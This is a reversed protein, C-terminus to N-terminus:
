PRPHTITYLHYVPARGAATASVVLNEIQNSDPMTSRPQLRRGATWRALYPLKTSLIAAQLGDLRGNTGEIPASAQDVRRTAGAEGDTRRFRCAEYRDRQAGCASASLRRNGGHKRAIAM